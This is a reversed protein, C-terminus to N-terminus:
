SFPFTVYCRCDWQQYFDIDMSLDVHKIEPHDCWFVILAVPSTGGLSLPYGNLMWGDLKHLAANSLADILAEFVAFGVYNSLM